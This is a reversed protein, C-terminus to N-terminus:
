RSRNARTGPILPRLRRHQQKGWANDAIPVRGGERVEAGITEDFTEKQFRGPIAGMRFSRRHGPRRHWAPPVRSDTASRRWASFTTVHALMGGYTFSKRPIACPTSSARTGIVGIAFAPWRDTFEKAASQYRQKMAAVSKCGDQPAPRGALVASWNEKNAVMVNLLERLTTGDESFLLSGSLVSQDLQEDSLGDARDLLRNTFWIDHAVVRDVFDMPLREKEAAPISIGGAPPFSRREAADLRFDRPMRRFRAPTTGFARSFARTFGEVSQYGSELAVRLISSRGSGLEWAGRELLLRRRFAGPSEGTAASVLRDFHYRSLYGRSAMAQGDLNEDLSDVIVDILQRLRSSDHGTNLAGCCILAQSAASSRNQQFVARGKMYPLSMCCSSLGCSRPRAAAGRQGPEPARRRAQGSGRSVRNESARGEPNESASAARRDRAMTRGSVIPLRRAADLPRPRPGAHERGVLSDAAATGASRPRSLEARGCEHACERFASVSRRRDSDGKALLHTSPTIGYAPVVMSSDLTGRANGIVPDARRAFSVDGMPVDAEKGTVQEKPGLREDRDIGKGHAGPSVPKLM